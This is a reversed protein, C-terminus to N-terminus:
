VKGITLGDKYLSWGKYTGFIAM